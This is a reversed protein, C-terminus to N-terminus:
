SNSDNWKVENRCTVVNEKRTNWISSENEKRSHVSITASASIQHLFAMFVIEDSKNLQFFRKEGNLQHKEPYDGSESTFLLVASNLLFVFSQISFQRKHHTFVYFISWAKHRSVDLDEECSYKMMTPFFIFFRRLNTIRKHRNFWAFVLSIQSTPFAEPVLYLSTYHRIFHRVFKDANQKISECSKEAYLHRQPFNELM